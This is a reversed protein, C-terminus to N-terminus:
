RRPEPHALDKHSRRLDGINESPRFLLMWVGFYPNFARLLLELDTDFLGSLQHESTRRCVAGVTIPISGGVIVECAM